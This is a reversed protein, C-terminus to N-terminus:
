QTNPDLPDLDQGDLAGDGDTDAMLPDTSFRLVEEGDTLGDADTDPNQPNTHHKNVEDGDSLGDKDSDIVQCATLKISKAEIEGIVDVVVGVTGVICSPKDTFTITYTGLPVGTFAYAGDADADVDAAFGGADKSAISVLLGSKTLGKVTAGLSLGKEIRYAIIYPLGIFLPSYGVLDLPGPPGGLARVELDAFGIEVEAGTGTVAYVHLRYSSSPQFACPGVQCKRTDWVASYSQFSTNVRIKALPSGGTGTTPTFVAIAAKSSCAATGECVRAVTNITPDFAGMFTPIVLPQPIVTPPLFFFHASGKGHTADSIAFSPLGEGEAPMEPSTASDSTCATLFAAALVAACFSHWSM